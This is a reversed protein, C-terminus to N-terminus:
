RTNPLSCGRLQVYKSAILKWSSSQKSWIKVQKDDSTSACLDGAANYNISRVIGTHKEGDLPLSSGDRCCDCRTGGIVVCVQSFIDAINFWM